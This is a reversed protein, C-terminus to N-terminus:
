FIVWSTFCLIWWTRRCLFCVSLWLTHESTWWQCWCSCVLMNAMPWSGWWDAVAGLWAVCAASATAAWWHRSTQDWVCMASYSVLIHLHGVQLPWENMNGSIHFNNFDMLIKGSNHDCIYQWTKKTWMTYCTCIIYHTCATRAATVCNRM